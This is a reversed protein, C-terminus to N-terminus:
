QAALWQALRKFDTEGLWSDQTGDATLLTTRPLEGQWDPDVEFYLRESFGADFRWAEAGALGSRDLVSALAEGPQPAPDAAILLLPASPHQRLFGGWAPLESLCPGCTIGWFHVIAPRGKHAALLTRWTGRGFGRMGARAPRVAGAALVGALLLRRKM